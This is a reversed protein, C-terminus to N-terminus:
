DPKWKDVHKMNAGALRLSLGLRRIGPLIAESGNRWKIITRQVHPKNANGVKTQDKLMQEGNNINKIGLM